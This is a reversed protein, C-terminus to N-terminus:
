ADESGFNTIVDDRLDFAELAEVIMQDLDVIAQDLVDSKGAAREIADLGADFGEVYRIQAEDFAYLKEMEDTGIKLQAWMGSYGPGAANIKDKYQTLKSKVNRTRTMYAIGGSNILLQEIRIFRDLRDQVQEVLYDRLMRDATRRAQKDQYGKFGPIRAILREFSGREAVIREYLESM